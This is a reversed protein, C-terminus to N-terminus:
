VKICISILPIVAIHKCRSGSQRKKTPMNDAAPTKSAPSSPADVAQIKHPPSDGFRYDQPNQRHTM